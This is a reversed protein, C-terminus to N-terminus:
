REGHVYVAVMSTGISLLVFSTPIPPWLILVSMESVPASRYLTLSSRMDMKAGVFATISFTMFLTSVRIASSSGSTNQM